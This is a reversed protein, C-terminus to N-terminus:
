SHLLSFYVSVLSLYFFYPTDNCDHMETLQYGALCQSAKDGSSLKSWVGVQSGTQADPWQQICSSNWDSRILSLSWVAESKFFIFFTSVSFRSKLLERREQSAFALFNLRKVEWFGEQQLFKVHSAATVSLKFFNVEERYIGVRLFFIKNNCAFEFWGRIFFVLQLIFCSSSFAQIFATQATKDKKYM